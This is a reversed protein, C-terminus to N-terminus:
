AQPEALLQVWYLGRKEAHGTAFAIGMEVFRPDMINQCHGPSDLWGRVAEDVSEPGYAINEGVLKEHYGVARVRDAPTQGTLDTHEFYSHQAMDAAHGLAVGALTGSLALPPAPAFQRAGCRAGRARADNVLQLARSALQPAPPLSEPRRLPQPLQQGPTPQPIVASAGRERVPTDPVYSTAVVLWVDLGHQYVGVAHVERDMLTSCGSRRLRQVVASEPGSVHVGGLEARYGSREAAQGLSRGGAWLAAIRDLSAARAVPPAAPLIGGCGGTRLMEVMSLPDADIAPAAALAVLLIWSGRLLRRTIRKM